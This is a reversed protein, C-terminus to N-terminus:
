AAVAPPQDRQDQLWKTPNYSHCTPPTLPPPTRTFMLFLPFQLINYWGGMWNLLPHNFGPAAASDYIFSHGRVEAVFFPVTFIAMIPISELTQRIEMRMQNKLYKPHNFTTKDFVFIYSLTACTFYIVLGFLWTIIYLSVAQRWMNDRAWRSQWAYESPSVSFYSSAPEFTWGNSIAFDNSGTLAQAFTANDTYGKWSAAITSIPDFSSVSPHIPLVNAYLRDFLFADFVELVVDM